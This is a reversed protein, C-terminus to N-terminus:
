NEQFFLIFDDKNRITGRKAMFKYHYSNLDIQSGKPANKMM